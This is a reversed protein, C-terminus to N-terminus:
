PLCLKSRSHPSCRQLQLLWCLAIPPQRNRFGRPEGGSMKYDQPMISDAPDIDNQMIADISRRSVSIQLLHLSSSRHSIYGLRTPCRDGASRLVDDFLSAIRDPPLAVSGSLKAHGPAVPIDRPLCMRCVNQVRLCKRSYDAPLAAHRRWLADLYIKNVNGCLIYVNLRGTTWVGEEDYNVEGAGIDGLIALYRSRGRGRRRGGDEYRV